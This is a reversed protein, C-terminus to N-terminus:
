QGGTPPGTPAATSSPPPSGKTKLQSLREEARKILRPASYVYELVARCLDGVIPVADVPLDGLSAHAGVNGFDRLRHGITALQDPIEGKDALQKLSAALTSGTAGRDLCVVELVRRLLVGYANSDIHRVQQAAKYAKSVSEPLGGLDREHAPYLVEYDPSDEGPDMYDGWGYTRLSVGNCAPCVLLEWHSSITWQMRHDLDEDTMSRDYSTVIEMPATNGCHGCKTAQSFRRKEDSRSTM